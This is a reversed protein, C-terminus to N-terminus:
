APFADVAIIREYMEKYQAMIEAEKRNILGQELAEQTRSHPRGKALLGQRMAKSIKKAVIDVESVLDYAKELQTVRESDDQPLYLGSHTLLDRLSADM